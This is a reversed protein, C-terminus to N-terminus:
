RRSFSWRLIARRAAAPPRMFLKGPRAKLYQVFEQVSRTPLGPYVVFIGPGSTLATIFAFDRISDYPLKPYLTAGVAFGASIMLLTYGDPQAKAALDYGIIGGAGSRNDIVLTQGFTETLKPAILRAQLDRPGGPPFPIILRIPKQPYTQACM